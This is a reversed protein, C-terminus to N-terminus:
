NEHHLIFKLFKNFSFLLQLVDFFFLACSRMLRFVMFFTRSTAACQDKPAKGEIAASAEKESKEPDRYM